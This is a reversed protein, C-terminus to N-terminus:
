LTIMVEAKTNEGNESKHMESFKVFGLVLILKRSERILQCLM